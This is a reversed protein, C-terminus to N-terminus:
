VHVVTGYGDAAFLDVERGLLEVKQVQKDGIAALDKGPFVQQFGDPFVVVQAVEARYVHVNAAQAFLNFLDGTLRFVDEGLPSHAVIESVLILVKMWEMRQFIVM